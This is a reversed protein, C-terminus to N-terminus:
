LCQSRGGDVAIVQGTVYGAGLALFRVAEAVDRPSGERRLRLSGNERSAIESWGDLAGERAARRFAAFSNCGASETFMLVGCGSFDAIWSVM